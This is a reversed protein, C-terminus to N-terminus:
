LLTFLMQRWNFQLGVMRSPHCRLVYFRTSTCRRQWTWTEIILCTYITIQSLLKDVVVNVNNRAVNWNTQRLKLSIEGLTVKIEYRIKHGFMVKLIFPTTHVQEHPDHGIGCSTCIWVSYVHVFLRICMRIDSLLTIIMHNHVKKSLKLKNRMITYNSYANCVLIPLFLFM